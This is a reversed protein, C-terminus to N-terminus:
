NPKISKDEFYDDLMISPFEFLIPTCTGKIIVKLYCDFDRSVAIDYKELFAKGPYSLNSLL